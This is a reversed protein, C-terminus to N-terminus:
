LKITTGMGGRAQLLVELAQPGSEIPVRSKLSQRLNPGMTESIFIAWAVGTEDKGPAECADHAQRVPRPPPYQSLM